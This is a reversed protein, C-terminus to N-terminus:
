VSEEIIRKFVKPDIKELNRKGKIETGDICELGKAINPLLEIEKQLFYFGPRASGRQARCRRKDGLPFARIKSFIKNPDIKKLEALVYDVDQKEGEILIGYCTQKIFIDKGLSSAYRALYSPSFQSDPSLALIRSIKEDM